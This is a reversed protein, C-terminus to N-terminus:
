YLQQRVYIVVGTYLDVLSSIDPRLSYFSDHNFIIPSAFLRFCDSGINPM